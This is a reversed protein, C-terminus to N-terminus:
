DTTWLFGSVFCPQRQRLAKDPQDFLPQEYRRWEYVEGMSYLFPVIAVM